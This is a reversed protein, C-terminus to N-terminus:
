EGGSFFVDIACGDGVDASAPTDTPALAEGDFVFRATAGPPAWGDDVAKSMFAAFMAAFTDRPRLRVTLARKESAVLRITIPASPSPAGPLSPVAGPPSRASPGAEEGEDEDDAADAAAAAAAAAAAMAKDLRSRKAAVARAANSRPLAHARQSPGPGASDEDEEDVM